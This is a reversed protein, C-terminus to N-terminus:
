RASALPILKSRSDSDSPMPNLNRNGGAFEKAFPSAETRKAAAATLGFLLANKAPKSLCTSAQLIPALVM